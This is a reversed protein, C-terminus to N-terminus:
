RVLIWSNCFLVAGEAGPCLPGLAAWGAPGSEKPSNGESPEVIAIKEPGKPVQIHLHRVSNADLKCKSPEGGESNPYICQRYHKPQQPPWVAFRYLLQFKSNSGLSLKSETKMRVVWPAVM